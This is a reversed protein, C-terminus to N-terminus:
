DRLEVRAAEARHVCRDCCLIYVIFSGGRINYDFTLRRGLCPKLVCYHIVESPLIHCDIDFVSNALLWFCNDLLYIAKDVSTQLLETKKRLNEHENEIRPSIHARM